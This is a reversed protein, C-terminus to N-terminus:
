GRHDVMQRQWAAMRQARELQGLGMLLIGLRAHEFPYPLGGWPFFGWRFLGIAGSHLEYLNLSDPAGGAGCRSAALLEHDEIPVTM